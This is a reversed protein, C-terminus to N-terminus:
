HNIALIRWNVTDIAYLAGWDMIPSGGPNCDIALVISVYLVPPARPMGPQYVTHDPGADAEGNSGADPEAEGADEQEVGGDRQPSWAFAEVYYSDRRSLCIAEPDDRNALESEEEPLFDDLAM